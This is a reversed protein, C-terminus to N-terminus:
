NERRGRGARKAPAERSSIAELLRQMADAANLGEALVVRRGSQIEAFFAIRECGQRQATGYTEVEYDARQIADREARRAALDIIDATM